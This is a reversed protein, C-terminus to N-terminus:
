RCQSLRFYDHGAGQRGHAAAQYGGRRDAESLMLRSTGDLNQPDGGASNAESKKKEIWGDLAALQDPQLRVQIQVGKGTPVPGRKKPVLTEQGSMDLM